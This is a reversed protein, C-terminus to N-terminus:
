APGGSPEQSREAVSRGRGPTGGEGYREASRESLSPAWREQSVGGCLAGRWEEGANGPTLFRFTAHAEESEFRPQRAQAIKCKTHVQAPSTAERLRLNRLSLGPFFFFFDSRESRLGPVFFRLVSSGRFPEWQGNVSRFINM